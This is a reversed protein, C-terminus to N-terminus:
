TVRNRFRIFARAEPKAVTRHERTADLSLSGALFILVAFVRAREFAARVCIRCM